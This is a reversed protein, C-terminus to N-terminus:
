RCANLQSLYGSWWYRTDVWSLLIVADFHGSSATTVVAVVFAWPVIRDQPSVGPSPGTAPGSTAPAGTAPASPGADPPAPTPTPSPARPGPIPQSGGYGGYGGYGPYRRGGNWPGSQQRVLQVGHAPPIRCYRGIVLDAAARAATESPGSGPPLMGAVRQGDESVLRPAPIQTRGPFQDYPPGAPGTWLLGTARPRDPEPLGSRLGAIAGFALLAALLVTAARRQRRGALAARRAARRAAGYAGRRLWRDGQRGPREPGSDIVDM